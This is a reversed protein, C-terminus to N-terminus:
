YGPVYSVYLEQSTLNQNLRMRAQALGEFYIRDQEQADVLSFCPLNRRKYFSALVGSALADTYEAMFDPMAMSEQTPLLVGVIILGDTIDAAPEDMLYIYIIENDDSKIVYDAGNVAVRVSEGSTGYISTPIAGNALAVGDSDTAIVDLGTPMLVEFVREFKADDSFFNLFEYDQQKAIINLELKQKWIQSERCFNRCVRWMEQHILAEMGLGGKLYPLVFPSLETVIEKM